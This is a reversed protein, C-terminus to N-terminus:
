LWLVLLAGMLMLSVLHYGNVLFYLSYPKAQGGFLYEPLTTTAIFGLWVFFGIVMGDFPSVAWLNEILLALVLSMVLAAALSGLLAGAVAMRPQKIDSLRLGSLRIWHAGFILPSYWFTGLLLPVLAALLVASPDLSILSIYM